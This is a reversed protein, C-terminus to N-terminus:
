GRDQRLRYGGGGSEIRRQGRRRLRSVRKRLAAQGISLREALRASSLGQRGAFRLEELLPDLEPGAEPPPWEEQRCAETLRWGEGDVRILREGVRSELLLRLRPLRERAWREPMGPFLLESLRRSDIPQHEAILQLMHLDLPPTPGGFRGRRGWVELPDVRLRAM